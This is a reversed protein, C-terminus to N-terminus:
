VQCMKLYYSYFGYIIQTPGVFFLLPVDVFLLLSIDTWTGVSFRSLLDVSVAASIMRGLAEMVIIFLLSSLPNGQRLGCSSSFFGTPSGNVLVSFRVLSICHAIWSCWKGGIRCMRLMYLLFDWNVHDYVKELDM